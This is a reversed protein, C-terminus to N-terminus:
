SANEEHEKNIEAQVTNMQLQIKEKYFNLHNLEEQTTAANFFTNYQKIAQTLANLNLQLIEAYTVSANPEVQAFIYSNAVVTISKGGWANQANVYMCNTAYYVVYNADNTKVHNFVISLQTETSSSSAFLGLTSKVVDGISGVLAATKAEENEPNLYEQATDVIGDVIGDLKSLSYSDSFRSYSNNNTAIVEIIGNHTMKNIYEMGREQTNKLQNEATQIAKEVAARAAESKAITNSLSPGHGMHLFNNLNINRIFSCIIEVISFYLINM